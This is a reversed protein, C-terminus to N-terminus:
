AEKPANLRRVTGDYCPQCQFGWALTSVIATIGCLCRMPAFTVGPVTNGVPRFGNPALTPEYRDAM